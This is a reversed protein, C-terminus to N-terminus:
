SSPNSNAILRKIRFESMIQDDIHVSLHGANQFLIHIYKKGEACNLWENWPIFRFFTRKRSEGGPMAFEVKMYLTPDLDSITFNTGCGACLSDLDQTTGPTRLVLNTYPMNSENVIEFSFQDTGAWIRAHRWGPLIVIGWVVLAIWSKKLRRNDSITYIYSLAGLPGTLVIFACWILKTGPTTSKSAMCDLLAAIPIPFFLFFTTLFAAWILTGTLLGADFVLVVGLIVLLFAGSLFLLRFLSNWRQKNM